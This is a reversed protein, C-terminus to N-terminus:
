QGWHGFCAWFLPRAFSRRRVRRAAEESMGPLAGRTPDLMWLQAERLAQWVPYTRLFHHFAVMLASAAEDGANWQTALVSRAGAALFATGVSYAEDYGSLSSGSHCAALVVLGLEREPARELLAILEEARLRDSGDLVLHATATTPATEVRGHCALHLFSGAAPDTDLLWASVEAATGRGSRSTTGDSRRGLYRCGRRVRHVAEAEKRAAPLAVQEEDSEPDAVLLGVPSPSVPALQATRHLMRASAAQSIAVLSVAYLGDSRRAAQWPVRALDGMPVLVIRHPRGAPVPLRALYGEVVPGMAAGWAWECLADLRGHFGPGFQQDHLEQLYDRVQAGTPDLNPLVVYSPPGDAPAVVAYGPVPGAAPMLYVLADTDLTTLAWRIEALTPPDLLDATADRDHLAELVDRRLEGPLQDPGASVAARWRRALGHDGLRTLRDGISRVGTAAFLALGRGADLATIAGAPDNAALCLRAASLADAGARRAARTMGALDPQVLVQWVHGRLGDVAARHAAPTDDLRRGIETLMENLLQWQPHAPGGADTRAELLVDRAERLDRTAATLDFRRVLGIALGLRLMVRHPYTSAAVQLATRFSHVATRVRDIDIEHGGQLAVMAAYVHHLSADPDAFDLRDVRDLLRDLEADTLRNRGTDRRQGVLMTIRETAQEFSTRLHGAPLQAVATGLEDLLASPDAEREVADLLRALVDGVGSMPQLPSNPPVIAVLEGLSRVTQVLDHGGHTMTALMRVIARTAALLPALTPDTGAEDELDALRTRAVGADTLEDEAIARQLALMRATARLRPWQPITPPDSEAIRLLGDIPRLAAPPALADTRLLAQILTAARAGRGPADPPLAFLDAIAADLNEVVPEPDPPAPDRLRARVLQATQVLAERASRPLTTPGALQREIRALVDPAGAQVPTRAAATLGELVLAHVPTVSGLAAADELRALAEADRGRGLLQIADTVLLAARLEPPADAEGTPPRRGAATGPTTATGLVTLMASVDREEQGRGAGRFAQVASTLLQRAAGLRGHVLAARGLSADVRAQEVRRESSTSSLALLEEAARDHRAVVEDWPLDSEAAFSATVLALRAAPGALEYEVALERGAKCMEELERLHALDAATAEHLRQLLLACAQEACQRAEGPAEAARYLEAARRWDGVAATTVAPRTAAAAEAAVAAEAWREYEAFGDRAAVAHAHADAPRGDADALAGLVWERDALLGPLLDELDAHCRDARAAAEALDGRGRCLQATHVDVAARLAREGDPGLLPALATVHDAYRQATAHDDGQCLGGLVDIMAMLVEDTATGAVATLLGADPTPGPERAVRDFEEAVRWAEADEHHEEITM